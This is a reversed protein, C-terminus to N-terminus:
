RRVDQFSVHGTLRALEAALEDREREERIRDERQHRSYDPRGRAMPEERREHHGHYRAPLGSREKQHGAMSSERREDAAPPAAKQEAKEL